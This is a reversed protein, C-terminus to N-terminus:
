RRESDTAEDNVDDHQVMSMEQLLNEDESADQKMVEESYNSENEVQVKKLVDEEADNTQVKILDISVPTVLYESEEFRKGHDEIVMQLYDITQVMEEAHWDDVCGLGGEFREM